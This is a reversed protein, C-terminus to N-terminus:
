GGAYYQGYVGLAFAAYSVFLGITIRNTKKSLLFFTIVGIAASVATNTVAAIFLFWWGVGGNPLRGNDIAIFAGCLLTMFVLNAIVHSGDSDKNSVVNSKHLIPEAVENKLLGNIDRSDLNVYVNVPPAESRQQQNSDPTVADTSRISTYGRAHLSSSAPEIDPLDELFDCLEIESEFCLELTSSDPLTLSWTDDHLLTADCGKQALLNKM